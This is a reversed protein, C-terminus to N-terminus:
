TGDELMAACFLLALVRRADAEEWSLLLSDTTGRDYDFFWVGAKDSKPEFVSCFFEKYEKSASEGVGPPPLLENAAHDLARCASDKCLEAARRFLEPSLKM